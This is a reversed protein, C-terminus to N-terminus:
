GLKGLMHKNRIWIAGAQALVLVTLNEMDCWCALTHHDEHNRRTASNYQIELKAVDCLAAERMIVLYVNLISNSPPTPM